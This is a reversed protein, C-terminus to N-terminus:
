ADGSERKTFYLRDDNMSMIQYGKALWERILKMDKKDDKHLFVLMGVSDGWKVEHM